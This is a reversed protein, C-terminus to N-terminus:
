YVVLNNKIFHNKYWGTHIHSPIVNVSQFETHSPRIFFFKFLCVARQVDMNGGEWTVGVPSWDLSNLIFCISFTRPAKRETIDYKYHLLCAFGANKDRHERCSSRLM